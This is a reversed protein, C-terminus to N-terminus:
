NRSFLDDIVDSNQNNVALGEGDSYRMYDDEEYMTNELNKEVIQEIDCSAILNSIERDNFMKLESRPDEKILNDVIEMAKDYDCVGSLGESVYEKIYGKWYELYEDRVRDNIDYHNVGEVDISDLLYQIQELDEGDLGMDLFHNMISPLKDSNADLYENEIYWSYLGCIESILSTEDPNFDLFFPLFKKLESSIGNSVVVRRGLV